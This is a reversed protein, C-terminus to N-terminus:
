PTYRSHYHLIDVSYIGLFTYLLVGPSQSAGSVVPWIRTAFCLKDMTLTRLMHHHDDVTVPFSQHDTIIEVVAEVIVSM